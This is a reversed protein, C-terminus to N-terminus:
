KTTTADIRPVFLAAKLFMSSKRSPPLDQSMMALVNPGERETEKCDHFYDKDRRWRVKFNNDDASNGGRNM